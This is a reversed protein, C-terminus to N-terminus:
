GGGVMAEFITYDNSKGKLYTLAKSTIEISM